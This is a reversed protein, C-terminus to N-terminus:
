LFQTRLSGLYQKWVACIYNVVCSIIVKIQHDSLKDEIRVSFFFLIIDIFIDFCTSVNCYYAMFVIFQMHNFVPDSPATPLTTYKHIPSKYNM